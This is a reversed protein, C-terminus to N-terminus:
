KKNFNNSLSNYTITFYNLFSTLINSYKMLDALVFNDLNQCKCAFAAVLIDKQSVGKINSNIIIEFSKSAYNDFGIRTGCNYM